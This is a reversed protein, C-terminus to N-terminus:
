VVAVAVTAIVTTGAIENLGWRGILGGQPSALQSNITTRVEAQTRALNWIRAEDLRGAFSGQAVGGSTLATALAAHQTLDPRPAPTAAIQGELTGNIASTLRGALPGSLGAELRTIGAAHNVGFPTDTEASFAGQYRTGGTKTIISIIGGTANGFQASASGTTVSAEEFANTGITISTGSAGRFRDGRYGAQAPVGDIYTANQTERSGRVSLGGDTDQLVGPQLRLVEDIREM